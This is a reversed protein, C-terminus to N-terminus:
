RNAECLLETIFICVYVLQVCMSIIFRVTNHVVCVYMCMCVRACVCVHVCTCVQVCM